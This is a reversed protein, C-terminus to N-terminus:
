ILDYKYFFFMVVISLTTMHPKVACMARSCNNIVEMM